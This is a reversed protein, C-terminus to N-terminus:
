IINQAQKHPQKKSSNIQSQLSFMNRLDILSIKLLKKFDYHHFANANKGIEYSKLYYSLYDPLILTGITIVCYLYLSRKGNGYCLYQLAIEDEVQTGYGTLVHYVDHREVKPIIEFTNEDLFHGLHKGLSGQPFELLDVKYIGWPKNNKFFATYIRQSKEFLWIIFRKRM